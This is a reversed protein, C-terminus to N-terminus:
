VGALRTDGDFPGVDVLGEVVGDAAFQAPERPLRDDAVPQLRARLHARDLVLRLELLHLLVEFVGPLVALDDDAAAHKLALAVEDLRDYHAVDGVVGPQNALFLEARYQRHQAKGIQVLHNGTGVVCVYTQTARDPRRVAVPREPHGGPDIGARDPHVLMEIGSRVDREGTRLLGADSNLLALLSELGEGLRGDDVHRFLLSCSKPWRRPTLGGTCALVPAAGSAKRTPAELCKELSVEVM